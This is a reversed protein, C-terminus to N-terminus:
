TAPTATSPRFPSSTAAPASSPGSATPPSRTIPSTTASRSSGAAGSVLDDAIVVPCRTRRRADALDFTYIYGGNEFVIAQPRALPVQHRFRHFGDAEADAKSALDYVYLNMRKNEDRDSLFYIRNGSWMPIIDLAPNDTINEIKRRPSITSGSTTPWAAATASGPGSSASSATTPWSRTTPRSPASAAARCRSITPRAATWRPRPLAPRQFREMRAHALPLRDAQRRAELGHRHQETGHPRLRRRPRALATYTLRKPVGGEAPM